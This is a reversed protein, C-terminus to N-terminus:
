PTTRVSRMSGRGILIGLAVGAVSALGLRVCGLSATLLAVGVATLWHNSLAVMRRERLAVVAGAAGGILLSFGTCYSLPAANACGPDLRTLVLAAALPISGALLGTSVSELGARSRHRLWVTAALLLAACCACAERGVPELLCITVIPALVIAIRAAMRFRGLEYHRLSRATLTELNVM